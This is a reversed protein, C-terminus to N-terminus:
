ITLRIVPITVGVHDIDIKEPKIQHDQVAQPQNGALNLGTDM